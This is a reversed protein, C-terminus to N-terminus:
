YCLSTNCCLEARFCMLYTQILIIQSKNLSGQALIAANFNSETCKNNGRFSLPQRCWLPVRIAYNCHPFQEVVESILLLLWTKSSVWLFLFYFCWPSIKKQKWQGTIKLIMNIFFGASVYYLCCVNTGSYLGVTHHLLASDRCLRPLLPPLILM